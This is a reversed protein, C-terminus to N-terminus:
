TPHPATGSISAERRSDGMVAIQIRYLKKCTQCTKPDEPDWPRYKEADIEPNTLHGCLSAKDGEVMHHVKDSDWSTVWRGTIM